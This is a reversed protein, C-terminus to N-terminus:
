PELSNPAAIRERAERLGSVIAVFLSAADGRRWPSIFQM